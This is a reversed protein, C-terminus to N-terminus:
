GCRAATGPGTGTATGASSCGVAGCRLVPAALLFTWCSRPSRWRRTWSSTGCLSRGQLADVGFGHPRDFRGRVDAAEVALGDVQVHGSRVADGARLLVQRSTRVGRLTLTGLGAVSTDNLVAAEHGPCRITVDELANDATLRVGKAGFELTGGRLRVGPALTVMPMGGLTGEVEIAPVQRRVADALEAATSARTWEGVPVEQLRLRRRHRWGRACNWSM